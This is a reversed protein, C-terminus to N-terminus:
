HPGSVAAQVQAATIAGHTVRVCALAAGLLVRSHLNVGAASLMERTIQGQPNPDPFNGIGRARMCRAFALLAPKKGLQDSQAASGVTALIGQCARQATKFGPLAVASQPAMVAVSTHGASVSVRPDPFSTVGHSRMCDAYKYAAAAPGHAAAQGTGAPPKSSGCGAAILAVSALTLARTTNM